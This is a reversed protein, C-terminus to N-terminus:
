RADDRRRVMGLGFLGAAFLAFSMPEPVAGVSDSVGTPDSGGDGNGLGALVAGAATFTIEESISFPSNGVIEAVSNAAAAFGSDSGLTNFCPENQGVIKPGNNPDFCTMRNLSIGTGNGTVSGFLSAFSLVQAASTLNTETVMLTVAGAGNATFSAGQNLLNFGGSTVSSIMDNVLFAGISGQFLYQSSNSTASVAADGASDTLLVFIDAKAPGSFAIALGLAAVAISGKLTYMISGM